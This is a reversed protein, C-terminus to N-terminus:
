GIPVGGLNVVQKQLREILLDRAYLDSEAKQRGFEASIRDKNSATLYGEVEKVRAQYGEIVTKHEALQAKLITIVESVGGLGMQELDSKQSTVNFRNQMFKWITPGILTFAAVLGAPIGVHAAVETFDSLGAM